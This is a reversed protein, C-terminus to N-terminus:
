GMRPVILDDNAAGTTIGGVFEGDTNLLKASTRALTKVSTKYLGQRLNRGRASLDNLSGTLASIIDNTQFDVMPLRRRLKTSPVISIGFKHIAPAPAAGM